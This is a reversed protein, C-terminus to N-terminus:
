ARRRARAGLWGMLGAGLLLASGPEPVAAAVDGNRVAWARFELFKPGVGQFGDYVNFGWAQNIDFSYQTGSWYVNDTPAFLNIFPGINQLGWVPRPTATADFEALNGLEDTWLHALESTSTDVNYQCGSGSFLPQCTGAFTVVPLRWDNYGGYVLNSAWTNADDWNMLGDADYNSTQAYNADQLWTIDRDTDYIMGGGRNILSASATSTFGVGAALLLAPLGHKLLKMSSIRTKDNDHDNSM